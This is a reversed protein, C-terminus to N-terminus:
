EECDCATLHCRPCVREPKGHPLLSRFNYEALDVRCEECIAKGDFNFGILDGEHIRKGCDPCRGPFKAEILRPTM